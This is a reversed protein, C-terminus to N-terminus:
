LASGKLEALLRKISKREDDLWQRHGPTRYMTGELNSEVRMLAEELLLVVAQVLADQM